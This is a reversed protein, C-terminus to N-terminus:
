EHTTGSGSTGGSSSTSSAACKTESHAKADKWTEVAAQAIRFDEETASGTAAQKVKSLDAKVADLTKKQANQKNQLTFLEKQQNEQSKINTQAFAAIQEARKQTDLLAAQAKEYVSKEMASIENGSDVPLNAFQKRLDLIRDNTNKIELDLLAKQDNYLRLASELPGKYMRSQQCQRFAENAKNRLHQLIGIKAIDLSYNASVGTRSKLNTSEKKAANLGMQYCQQHVQTLVEQYKITAKGLEVIKKQEVNAILTNITDKIAAVTKTNDGHAEEIKANLAELEAKAEVGLKASDDEMTKQDKTAQESETKMKETLDKLQTETKVFADELQTVEEKKEEKEIKAFYPCAQILALKSSKTSLDLDLDGESALYDECIQFQGGAECSGMKKCAGIKAKSAEELSKNARSCDTEYEKECRNHYSIAASCVLIKDTGNLIITTKTEPKNTRCLTAGTEAQSCNYDRMTSDVVVSPTTPTVQSFGNVSLFLTSIFILTKM